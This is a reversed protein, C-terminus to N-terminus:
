NEQKGLRRQVEKDSLSEIEAVLTALETDGISRVQSRSITGAFQAVTPSEFLAM